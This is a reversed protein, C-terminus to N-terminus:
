DLPLELILLLGGVSELVVEMFPDHITRDALARLEDRDAREAPAFFTELRDPERSPLLVPGSGTM